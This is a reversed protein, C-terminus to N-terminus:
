WKGNKNRKIRKFWEECTRNKEDIAYVDSGYGIIFGVKYASKMDEESYKNKDQEKEWKAGNIFGLMHSTHNEQVTKSYSVGAEEVTEKNKM